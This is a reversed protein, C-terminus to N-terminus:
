FNSPLAAFMSGATQAPSVGALNLIAAIKQQKRGGHFAGSFRRPGPHHPTASLAKSM